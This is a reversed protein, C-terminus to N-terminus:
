ANRAGKWTFDHRLAKLQLEYAFITEQQQKLVELCAREISDAKREGEMRGWVSGEFWWYQESPSLTLLEYHEM